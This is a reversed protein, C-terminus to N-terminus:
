VSDRNEERGEIKCMRVVPVGRWFQILFFHAIDFIYTPIFLFLKRIKVNVRIIMIWSYFEYM